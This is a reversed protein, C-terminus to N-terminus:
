VSPPGQILLRQALGTYMAYPSVRQLMRQVQAAAAESGARLPAEDPKKRRQFRAHWARLTAMDLLPEGHCALQSYLLGCVRESCGPLRELLFTVRFQWELEADVATLVRTEAEEDSKAETLLAAFDRPLRRLSEPYFRGDACFRALALVAKAVPAALKLRRELEKQSQSALTDATPFGRRNLTTPQGYAACLRACLDPVRVAACRARLLAKLLDEFVRPARMTRGAEAGAVWSLDKDSATMAYFLSLDENLGLQTEVQEQLDALDPWGSGSGRRRGAPKAGSQAEPLGYVLLPQGVASQCILVEVVPAEDAPLPAATRYVVLQLSRREADFVLPPLVPAPSNEVFRVLCFGAPVALLQPDALAPAPTPQREGSTSPMLM